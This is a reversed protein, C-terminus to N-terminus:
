SHNLYSRDILGFKEDRPYNKAVQYIEKIYEQSIKYVDLQQFNPM